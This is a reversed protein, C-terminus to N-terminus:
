PKRAFTCSKPCFTGNKGIIQQLVVKCRMETMHGYCLFHKPPSSNGSFNFFLRRERCKILFAIVGKTFIIVLINSTKTVYSFHPQFCNQLLYDIFFLVNAGFFQVNAQFGHSLSLHQILPNVWETSDHCGSEHNKPLPQWELNSFVHDFQLNM